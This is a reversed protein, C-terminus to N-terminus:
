FRASLDIKFTEVRFGGDRGTRGMAHQVRVDFRRSIGYQVFPIHGRVDTGSGFDTSEALVGLAADSELYRYQYGAAWTGAGNVQGLRVEGLYGTDNRGAETNVVYQASVILPIGLDLRAEAFGEVLTFGTAYVLAPEGDGDGPRPEPRTTNGFANRPNHLLPYGEVHRYAYVTVGALLYDTGRTSIRLAAQGTALRTERDLSREELIFAGGHLILSWGDRRLMFRAAAGEPNADGAFVLDSVAIWPQAMKGLTLALDPVPTWGIFVRDFRAQKDAFAGTMTQNDSVPDGSNTVLRLGAVVEDGVRAHLALRGRFRWLERSPADERDTIQFRVRADGSLALADTWPAPEGARGELVPTLAALTAALMATKM